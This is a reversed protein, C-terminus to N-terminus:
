SINASQGYVLEKSESRAQMEWVHQISLRGSATELPEIYRSQRFCRFIQMLRNFYSHKHAVLTSIRLLEKTPREYNPLTHEIHNVIQTITEALVVDDLKFIQSVALNNTVLSSGCLMSLLDFQNITKLRLRHTQDHLSCVMKARGIMNIISPLDTKTLDVIEITFRNITARDAITKIWNVLEKDAHSTVVAIDLTKNLSEPMASKLDVAPLIQLPELGADCWKPLYEETVSPSIPSEILLNKIEKLRNLDTDDQMFLLPKVVVCVSYENITDIPLQRVGYKSPAFILCLNHNVILDRIETKTHPHYQFTNWGLEKLAGLYGDAEYSRDIMPAMIYLASKNM